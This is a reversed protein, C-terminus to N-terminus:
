ILHNKKELKIKRTKRENGFVRRFSLPTINRLITVSVKGDPFSRSVARLKVDDRMDDVAEVGGTAASELPRGAVFAGVM